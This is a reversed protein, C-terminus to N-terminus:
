TNTKVTTEFTFTSYVLGEHRLEINNDFDKRFGSEVIIKWM